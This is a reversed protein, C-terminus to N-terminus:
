QPDTLTFTNSFYPQLRRDHTAIIMAADNEAAVAKLLEVVRLASEDDLSSTPEDADILKPFKIDSRAIAARQQQGQSLRGPYSQAKAALGLSDLLRAVREKDQKRGAFYEAALLNASVTLNRILHPQQFIMGISAGRVHDLDSGSLDYLSHG